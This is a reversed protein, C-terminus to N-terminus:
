FRFSDKAAKPAFATEVEAVLKHLEGLIRARQADTRPYSGLNGILRMHKQVNPMRALALRVFKDERSEDRPVHVRPRRQTHGNGTLEFDDNMMTM